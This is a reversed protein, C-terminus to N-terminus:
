AEPPTEGAYRETRMVDQNYDAVSVYAARAAPPLPVMEMVTDKQLVEGGFPDDTFDIDMLPPITIVYKAVNLANFLHKDVLEDNHPDSLPEWKGFMIGFPPVLRMITVVASRYPYEVEYTIAVSHWPAQKALKVFKMM